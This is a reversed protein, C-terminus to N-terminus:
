LSSYSFPFASVVDTPRPAYALVPGVKAKPGAQFSPIGQLAQLQAIAAEIEPGEM